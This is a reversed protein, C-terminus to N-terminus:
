MRELEKVKKLLEVVMDREKLQRKLRINERRLRELEDVENDLKHLGRKDKLGEEGKTDYKKVWSYVQNYSVDYLSATGKYDRNNNICHLVIEKRESLTTKRKAEAMYVEQKPDYDKLERNANYMMIWKNLTSDSPIKYKAVLHVMSGEGQIYREVMEIKFSKSYSNNKTKNFFGDIGFNKYIPIWKYVSCTYSKVNFPIKYKSCIEQMSLNNTLYDECANAKIEPSYKIKRSM